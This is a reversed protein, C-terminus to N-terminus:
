ARAHEQSCTALKYSEVIEFVMHNFYEALNQLVLASSFDIVEQLTASNTHTYTHTHYVESVIESLLIAKKHEAVAM